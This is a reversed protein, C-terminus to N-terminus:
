SRNLFFLDERGCPQCVAFFESGRKKTKTPGDCKRCLNKISTSRTCDRCYFFYTRGFRIELNTSQCRTCLYSPMAAPSQEKRGDGERDGQVETRGTPRLEGARDIGDRTARDPGVRGPTLKTPEVHRSVLFAGIAEIEGAEFKYMGWDGDSRAFLNAGRRHREIISDVADAIQDAKHLQPIEQRPRDIVGQDSIAVLVEIPCSRFGGQVLGLLAKRRLAEKHDILLARLLAGQRTAQQIPSPMGIRQRGRVRAFELQANIHVEGTVSKSEIIIIGHKHLLLHDIQAVEGQREVRLDNIVRVDANDAYRRRLYFAMQREADDGAREMPNSAPLSTKEKLIVGVIIIRQIRKRL